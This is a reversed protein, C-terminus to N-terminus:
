WQSRENLLEVLDNLVRYLVSRLREAKDARWHWPPVEDMYSRQALELRMAHLNRAPRGHKLVSWGGSTGPSLATDYDQAAYCRTLVSREMSPTCSRSLNTWINFTPFDHLVDQPNFSGISHCDFLLATGHLEKLRQMEASIADHYPLHYREVRAAMEVADPAANERYIAAGERDTLPFLGSASLWPFTKTTEPAHDVDLVYRHIPTQVVSLDMGLGNYLRDIHWDTEALAKGTDSFTQFIDVPVETGSHPIGLVIPLSGQTVEIM